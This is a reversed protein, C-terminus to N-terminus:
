VFFFGLSKYVFFLSNLLEFKIKEEFLLHERISSHEVQHLYTYVINLYKKGDTHLSYASIIALLYILAYPSSLIKISIMHQSPPSYLLPISQLLFGSGEFRRCAGKSCLQYVLMCLHACFQHFIM